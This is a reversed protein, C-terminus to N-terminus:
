ALDGDVGCHRSEVAVAEVDHPAEIQLLRETRPFIGAPLRDVAVESSLKDHQQGVASSIPRHHDRGVGIRISGMEPDQRPCFSM